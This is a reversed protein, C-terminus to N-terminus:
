GQQCTFHHFEGAQFLRKSPLAIPTMSLSSPRRHHIAIFRIYWVQSPSPPQPSSQSSSSTSPPSQPSLSQQADEVQPFSECVGGEDGELYMIIVFGPEPSLFKILVLSAGVTFLIM